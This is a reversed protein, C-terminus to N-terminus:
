NDWSLYILGVVEDNDSCLVHIDVMQDRGSSKSM